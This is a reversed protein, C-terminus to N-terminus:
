AGPSRSAPSRTLEEDRRCVFRVSLACALGSDQCVRGSSVYPGPLCSKGTPSPRSSDNTLPSQGSSPSQGGKRQGLLDRMRSKESDPRSPSTVLAQGGWSEVEDGAGLAWITTVKGTFHRTMKLLLKLLSQLQQERDQKEKGLASPM